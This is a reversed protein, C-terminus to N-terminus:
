NGITIENEAQIIEGTESLGAVKVVYSGSLDGAYFRLTTEHDADPVANPEWYLLYRFDPVREMSNRDAHDVGTFTWESKDSLPFLFRTMEPLPRVITFDSKKTHIDVIGGFSFDRYYYTSPLIAMRDIEGPPIGAIRAYNDYLVGDVFVGPKDEIFTQTQQDILSIDVAGRRQTFKVSPVLEYFYERLSDLIIYNGLKVSQYPMNYFVSSDAAYPVPPTRSFPQEKFRAQLQFHAFKEKLYVLTQQNLGFLSHEPPVRFGNWFSEDLEIKNDAGPMTIVVDQEGRKAKLLFHFNGQNDTKNSKIDTGPGPISLTVKEGPLPQGSPDGLKGSLWIGHYDPRYLIDRLDQIASAETTNQSGFVMVPEKRYVSVSLNGPLAKGSTGGSKIRLTVMDRLSYRDHDTTVALANIRLKSEKEGSMVPRALSDSVPTFPRTPNIIVFEKRFFTGEGFNKMWNTYALIYYLGTPLDDPIRFDGAGEGHNLLVKKRIISTNENGVLEIFALTSIQDEPYLPSTCYIKFWCIEGTFASEHSIHVLIEEQPCQSQRSDPPQGTTNKWIVILCFLIFINKIPQKM